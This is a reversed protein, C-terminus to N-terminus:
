GGGGSGGGGGGSGGSGGGDGGGGGSDGGGGAEGGSGGGTDGGTGGGADGGGIDGGGADGGGTAAAEGGTDGSVAESLGEGVEGVGEAAIDGASGSDSVASWEGTFVNIDLTMMGVDGAEGELTALASLDSPVAEPAGTGEAGEISTPEDQTAAGTIADPTADGAGDAPAGLTAEAGPADTADGGGEPVADVPVGLTAETSAPSDTTSPKDGGGGGGPVGEVFTPSPTSTVPTATTPIGIPTSTTPTGIMAALPTSPTSSPTSSPANPTTKLGLLGSTTPTTPPPTSPTGTGGPTTAGVPTGTRSRGRAEGKGSTKGSPRQQKSSKERKTRRPGKDEQCKQCKKKIIKRDDVEVEVIAINGPGKEAKKRKRATVALLSLLLNTGETVVAPAKSPDKVGNNRAEIIPPVIYTDGPPKRTLEKWFPIVEQRAAGAGFERDYETIAQTIVPQSLVTSIVRVIISNLWALFRPSKNKAGLMAATSGAM